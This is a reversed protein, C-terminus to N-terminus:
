DDDDDDDVDDDEDSDEDDEDEHSRFLELSFQARDGFRKAVLDCVGPLAELVDPYRVLYEGIEGPHPVRIHQRALRGVAAAVRGALLSSAAPERVAGAAPSTERGTRM